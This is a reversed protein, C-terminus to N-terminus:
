YWDPDESPDWGGVVGGVVDNQWLEMAAGREWRRFKRDRPKRAEPDILEQRKLLRYVASKSPVPEVGARAAEHFLRRPGWLPNRRRAEM